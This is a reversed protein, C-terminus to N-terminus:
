LTIEEYESSGAQPDAKARVETMSAVLFAVAQGITSYEFFFNPPLSVGTDRQLRNKLELAMLSDMGRSLLPEDDSLDSAADLGLVRAASSRVRQRILPLRQDLHAEALMSHWDSEPAPQGPHMVPASAFEEFFRWASHTKEPSLYTPWDMALAAVSPQSGALAAELLAIGQEASFAGLGFKASQEPGATRTAMGVGKWQGWAICTAPLGLRRREVALADLFGNAAAYNANGALGLVSAGSGYLVFFDLRLGRTAEHLLWAADVKPAFVRRFSDVTQQSLLGQEYDGAAHFVGRLTQGSGAIREFVRAVEEPRSVDATIEYVKAGQDNLAAIRRRAETSPEHRGVLFFCKAGRKAMWHATHLGLGGFAGTILYAGADFCVPAARRDNEAAVSTLRPAWVKGERIAVVREPAGEHLLRCLCRLDEPRAEAPLDVQHVTLEPQEMAAVKVMAEVCSSALNLPEGSVPLAGRTVLWLPATRASGAGLSHLADLVFAANALTCEATKGDNSRRALGVVVAAAPDRGARERLSDFAVDHGPHVQLGARGLAEVLDSSGDQEKVVVAPSAHNSRASLAEDRQAILITQNQSLIGLPGDNALSAAAFGEEELLQSWQERSILPYDRRLGVDNFRWWSEIMGLTVIASRQVTTGELAILIGGPRLMRRVRQLTERLDAAAHLVNSAIVIDFEASFPADGELDLPAYRMFSYESFREKAPALFAPSVDTFWYEIRGPPLAPLTAATASGTGAGVELLKVMRRGELRRVADRVVAALARNLTQAAPADRYIRDALRFSGQPFLVELASIRGQLVAALQKAQHLFELEAAFQPFASSLRNEEGALDVDPLSGVRWHTGERRLMGDEELIRLLWSLLKQHAPSIGEIAPIPEGPALKLGFDTLMQVIYFACLRNVEPMFQRYSESLVELNLEGVAKEVAASALSLLQAPAPLTPEAEYVVRYLQPGAAPREAQPTPPGAKPKETPWYRQRQFPYTPLSLKHCHRGRYVQQWDLTAGARHLQRLADQLGGWADQGRRVSPIAALNSPMSTRAMGLLVPDPGVELLVSPELALLASVGEAFRVTGRIHRRWYAGDPALGSPWVEGSVNSIFPIRPAAYSFKEATREFADLIPDMLASHFAHSVTLPQSVVRKESLRQRLQCLQRSDGSFVVNNAGNVAAISIRPFLRVSEAAAEAGMRAALMGGSRPLSGMLRGREYALLLATELPMVGAVCAAVYEGLSHGLVAAPRIGWSSWLEALAYEFTFLAPQTWETQHIVDDPIGAAGCLVDKLSHPLRGQLVSDCREV